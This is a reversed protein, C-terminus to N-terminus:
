PVEDEVFLLSCVAAPLAVLLGFARARRSTALLARDKTALASAGASFALDLFMQDAHDACAVPAPGVALIVRATAQWRALLASRARPPLGFRERALVADLEGDTADSRLAIARGAEVAHRLPRARPDDFVWFDLLVNTDLVILPAGAPM